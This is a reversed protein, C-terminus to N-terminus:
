GCQPDNALWDVVDVLVIAANGQGGYICRDLLRLHQSNASRLDASKGSIGGSLHLASPQRFIKRTSLKCCSQYPVRRIYEIFTPPLTPSKCEDAPKAAVM